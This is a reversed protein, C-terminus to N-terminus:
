YKIIKKTVIGYETILRIYYIGAALDSTFITASEGRNHHTLVVEGVTNYIVVDYNFVGTASINIIDNVPNPYIEFSNNLVLQSVSTCLSVSVTVASCSGTLACGGEGRVYYTTTTTPTVTISSNITSTLSNAGCSSTYIHWASSGNLNGTLNIISSGGTCIVSQSAVVNTITAVTCPSLTGGATVVKVTRFKKNRRDPLLKNEVGDNYWEQTGDDSMLEVTSGNYFPSPFTVIGEPNLSTLDATLLVPASTAVGNWEYLAADLNSDFSGAVILYQGNANKEMSRIGRGGLNLEIPNGYQPNGIPSGNNFWGEFNKVPCILAKTRNSIPVLPARFGIYLSTDNPGLCMGEINLGDIQKPIMGSASSASFDYGKSDGWSIMSSRLSQSGLYSATTLSGTGAVTTGFFYHRSTQVNGSKSNGLSGMWYAKNGKRCSAEFDGEGSFGIPGAMDFANFFYGSSDKHYLHLGNSEDDASLFYNNGADVATSADSIGTHFDTNPIDYAAASAAYKLVYTDSGAGDTVNVTINCYGVGTPNIKLARISDNAYVFTLNANSVVSNNSSTASVTLTSLPTDLDKLIFVIGKTRCPDTVDNIIGSAAVPTATYNLYDTTSNHLEISPTSSGGGGGQTGYFEINDFAFQDNGNNSLDLIKIQLNSQNDLITYSSLNITKSSWSVFGDDTLSSNNIIQTWNAGGDISYEIDFSNATESKYDFRMYMSNWGSTNLNIVLEADAGSGKIDDWSIASGATHNTSSIDTYSTGAIGNNDIQQFFQQLVPATAVSYTTPNLSNSSANSVNSFTWIAMQTQSFINAALLTFLLAYFSTRLNKTM